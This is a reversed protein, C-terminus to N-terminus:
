RHGPRKIVKKQIKGCKNRGLGTQYKGEGTKPGEGLYGMAFRACGLFLEKWSGLTRAMSRHATIRESDTIPNIPLQHPTDEM